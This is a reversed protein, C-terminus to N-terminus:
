NRRKTPLYSIIPCVYQFHVEGDVDVHVALLHSRVPVAQAPVVPAARRSVVHRGHAPVLRLRPPLSDCLVDFRDHVSPSATYTHHSTHHAAANHPPPARQEPVGHEPVSHSKPLAPIVSLPSEPMAVRRRLHRRHVDSDFDGTLSRVNCRSTRYFYAAFSGRLLM